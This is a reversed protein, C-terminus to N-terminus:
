WVLSRLIDGFNLLIENQSASCICISLKSCHVEIPGIYKGMNFLTGKQSDQYQNSKNININLTPKICIEFQYWCTCFTVLKKM